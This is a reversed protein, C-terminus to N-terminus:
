RCSGYQECEPEPLRCEPPPLPQRLLSRPQPRIVMVLVAEVRGHQRCGLVIAESYNPVGGTVLGPIRVKALGRPGLLSFGLLPYPLRVRTNEFFFEGNANGASSHPYLIRGSYITGGQEMLQDVYAADLGTLRAALEPQSLNEFEREFAVDPVILLAGALLV